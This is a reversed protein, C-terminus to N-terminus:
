HIKYYPIVQAKQTLKYMLDYVDYVSKKADEPPTPRLNRYSKHAYGGRWKVLNDLAIFHKTELPEYIGLPILLKKLYKLGVGHNQEMIYKSLNSKLNKLEDRIRDYIKDNDGWDDLDSEKFKGMSYLLCLSSFSIRQKNKFNDEIEDIIYICLNEVYEEFAAHSLVCYSRVDLNYEDPLETPDNHIAIYKIELNLLYNGLKEFDDSLNTM